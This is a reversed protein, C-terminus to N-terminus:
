PAAAGTALVPAGRALADARATVAALARELEKGARQRDAGPDVRVAPGFALVCRAFPLPVLFRDWSRLRRAPRAGIALPVVPAGTLAALAVVGPQLQERPGRPGDPVIAVDSGDRIAAALARLATGGGRSSSGRVVPLGFCTVFRTVIEGDRSRSALVVPPRAGGEKQMRVSLWPVLLIRGHWVIYILPAGARWRAELGEAGVVRVRWTIGLIRVAMAALRPAIGSKVRAGMM